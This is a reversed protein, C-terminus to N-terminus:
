GHCGEPRARVITQPPGALVGLRQLDSYPIAPFEHLVQRFRIAFDGGTRASTMSQINAMSYVTRRAVFQQIRDPDASAIWNEVVGLTRIRQSDTSRYFALVDGPQLTRLQANCLYAKRIANGSPQSGNSCRRKSKAFAGSLPDAEFRPQIPVIWTNACDWSWQSPGFRIVYELPTMASLPPMPRAPKTM